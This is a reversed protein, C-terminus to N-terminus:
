GRRVLLAAALLAAGTAVACGSSSQPAVKRTRADGERLTADTAGGRRDARARCETMLAHAGRDVVSYPQVLNAAVILLDPDDTLSAARRVNGLVKDKIALSPTGQASARQRIDIAEDLLARAQRDNM